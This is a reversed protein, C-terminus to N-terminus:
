PQNMNALLERRDRKRLVYLLVGEEARVELHNQIALEDLMGTAEEVDLSTRLAATVPTIEGREALVKLLEKQKNEASLARRSHEPPNLLRNAHWLFFTPVATGFIFVCAWAWASAALNVGIAMVSICWAAVGLVVLASVLLHRSALMTHAATPERNTAALHEGTGRTGQLLGGLADAHREMCAGDSKSAIGERSGSQPDQKASMRQQNDKPHM